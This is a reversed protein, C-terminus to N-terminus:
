VLFRIFIKERKKEAIKASSEVRIISIICWFETCFGFGAWWILAM